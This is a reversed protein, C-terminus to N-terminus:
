KFLKGIDNFLVAVMLLLIIAVGIGNIVMQAKQSMKKRMVAEIIVVLIKGGDLAPIPLLNMFGLNASLLVTFNVVNLLVMLFVNSNTEEAAETASDIVNGVADAIGVPGAFYDLSFGKNFMMRFTQIVSVMQLRVECLGFKMEERFDKAARYDGVIGFLYNGDKDQKLRVTTDYRKGDREYCVEIPETPDNTMRFLQIERFNYVRDGNLSIITDGAEIGAEAAASNPEVSKIQAPDIYSVHCIITGLIFALIFNFFPGALLVMLKVFAPKNNFANEDDSDEYQGDMMVYGGIPLLRLCYKTEKKGFKAIAPGMGISFELVKVHNLKAVIFHGFEHIFVIVGFVLIISILKLM